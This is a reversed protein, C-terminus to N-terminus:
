AKENKVKKFIIWYQGNSSGETDHKTSFPYIGKKNESYQKLWKTFQHATPQKRFYGNYNYLFIEYLQRKEIRKDYEFKVPENYMDHQGTDQVNKSVAGNDIFDDMFDIFYKNTHEILTRRELTLTPATIVDNKLFLRICTIQSTYFQNWDNEKWDKSFFWKGFEDKPKHKDSYHEAFEFIRVRDRDSSGQINLTLNTTMAIKVLKKFSDQGKKDIDIGRLIMNYFDELKANRYIDNIHAVQTSLNCDAFAFKGKEKITKGDIEVYLNSEQFDRNICHGVGDLILGKGTRGNAEGFDGIESDTFVIFFLEREFFQHYLYGIHTQLIKLRHEDQGAVNFMFKEFDGRTTDPKYDRKIINDEWIFGDIDKYKLTDTKDATIRVVCNNFYLYKETQTDTKLQEMKIAPLRNLLTPKINEHWEIWKDYITRANIIIPPQDEAPIELAPDPYTISELKTIYHEFADKIFEASVETIKNDVIQVPRQTERNVDFRYFNLKNLKKLIKPKIFDLGKFGGDSDRKVKYFDHLQELEKRNAEKQSKTRPKTTTKTLVETSM